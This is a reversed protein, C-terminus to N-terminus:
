PLLREILGPPLPVRLLLGFIGHLLFAVGAGTAAAPLLRGGAVLILLAIMVATTAIFGLAPVVVVWAVVALLAAPVTWKGRGTLLQPLKLWPAPCTRFLLALGTLILAGGIIRPFFASGFQQGPLERFGLTGAIVAIGGIITLLGILRDNLQMQESAVAPTM